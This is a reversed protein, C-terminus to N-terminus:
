IPWFKWNLFTRYPRQPDFNMRSFSPFGPLIEQKDTHDLGPSYIDLFTFYGSL